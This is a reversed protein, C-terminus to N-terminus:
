FNINNLVEFCSKLGFLRHFPTKATFYNTEIQEPKQQLKWGLPRWRLKRSTKPTNEAAKFLVQCGM